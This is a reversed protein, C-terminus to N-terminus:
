EAGATHPLHISRPIRSQVTIDRNLHKGRTGDIGVPEQAEFLFRTRRRRERM